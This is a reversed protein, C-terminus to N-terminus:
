ARPAFMADIGIWYTNGPVPRFKEPPSPIVQVFGEPIDGITVTFGTVPVRRTPRLEWLIEGQPSDKWVKVETIHGGWRKESLGFTNSPDDLRNPVIVKDGCGCVNILMAILALLIAIQIRMQYRWM